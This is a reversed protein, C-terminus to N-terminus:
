EYGNAESARTCVRSAVVTSCWLVTSPDKEFLVIDVNATYYYHNSVTDNDNLELVTVVITDSFVVALSLLLM